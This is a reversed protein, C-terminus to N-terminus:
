TQVANAASHAVDAVIVTERSWRQPLYGGSIMTHIATVIDVAPADMLVQGYSEAQMSQMVYEAKNRMSLMLVAIEPHPVHFHGTLDFSNMSSLNIDM